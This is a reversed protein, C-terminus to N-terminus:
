SGLHFTFPLVTNFGHYKGTFIYSDPHTGAHSLRNFFIIILCLECFTTSIGTSTEETKLNNSNELVNKLLFFLKTFKQKCHLSRKGSNWIFALLNSFFLICNSSAENMCAKHFPKTNPRQVTKTDALVSYILKKILVVRKEKEATVTENKITTSYILKVLIRLTKGNTAGKLM